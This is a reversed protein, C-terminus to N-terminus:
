FYIYWSLCHLYLRLISARERLCRQRPVAILIEYDSHTDTAETIWCAIRMRRIINNDATQRATGYKEVKDWLRCSKRSFFKNFIFPTNQHGRCTQFMEWELFFEVLHLIPRCVDERRRQWMKIFSLNERCIKSFYKLILKRSFGDLPLRTTGHPCVSLRVSLCVSMVFSSTAKLLKAFVTLVVSFQGHKNRYLYNANTIM